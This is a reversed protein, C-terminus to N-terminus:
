REEAVESGPPAPVINKAAGLMIWKGWSLLADGIRKESASAWNAKYKENLHRALAAGRRSPTDMLYEIVDDLTEEDRAANWVAEAASRYAHRVVICRKQDDRRVLEFRFLIAIANRFGSEEM